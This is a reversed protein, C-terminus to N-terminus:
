FLKLVTEKVQNKEVVKEHLYRAMSEMAAVSCWSLPSARRERSRVKRSSMGSSRAREPLDESSFSIVRRSEPRPSHSESLLLFVEKELWPRREGSQAIDLTGVSTYGSM